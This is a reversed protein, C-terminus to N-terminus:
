EFGFIASRPCDKDLTSHKLARLEKGHAAPFHPSNSFSGDPYTRRKVSEGAYKKMKDLAEAAREPGQAAIM